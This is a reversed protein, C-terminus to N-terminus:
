WVICIQYVASQVLIQLSLLYDKASYWSGVCYRIAVYGIEIMSLSHKIQVLIQLSQLYDKTSYWSGVCYRIAVYGMEIM